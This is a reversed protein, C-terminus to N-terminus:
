VLSGVFLVQEELPDVQLLDAIQRDCFKQYTYFTHGMENAAMRWAMLVHGLDVLPARASRSDRYRWMPREPRTSFLFIALPPETFKDFLDFTAKHLAPMVDDDRLLDLAHREVNYHHLGSAVGAVRPSCAVYIETPHRAGGSPVAKLLFRGQTGFDIEGRMGGCYDLIFALGAAGSRQEASLSAIESAIDACDGFHRLPQRALSPRHLFRSPPPDVSAYRAMREVDEIAGATSNMQVFPFARTGDHFAFAEHWGYRHWEGSSELAPSTEEDILGAALLCSWIEDARSAAEPDASWAAFATAQSFVAPLEALAWLLLDDRVIIPETAASVEAVFVREGALRTPYVILSPALRYAM